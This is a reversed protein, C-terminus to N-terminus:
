ITVTTQIKFGTKHKKYHRMAATAPQPSRLLPKSVITQWRDSTRVRLQIFDTIQQFLNFNISTTVFRAEAINPHMKKDTLTNNNDTV